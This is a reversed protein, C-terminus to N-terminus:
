EPMEPLALQQEHVLHRDQHVQEWRTVRHNGRFLIYDTKGIFAVLVFPWVLSLKHLSLASVSRHRHLLRWVGTESLGAMTAMQTITLSENERIWWLASAVRSFCQEM